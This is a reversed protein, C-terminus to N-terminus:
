RERHLLLRAVQSETKIEELVTRKKFKWFKISSDGGASIMVQNLADVGIGRM